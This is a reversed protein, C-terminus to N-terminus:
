GLRTLLTSLLLRVRFDMKEVDVEGTLELVEHQQTFLPARGRCTDEIMALVNDETTVVRLWCRM